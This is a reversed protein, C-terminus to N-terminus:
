AKEADAPFFEKIFDAFTKGSFIVRRHHLVRWGKPTARLSVGAIALTTRSIVGGADAIQEKIILADRSDSSGECLYEVVIRRVYAREKNLAHTEFLGPERPKTRRPKM